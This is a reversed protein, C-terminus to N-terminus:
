WVYEGKEDRPWGEMCTYGGDFLKCQEGSVEACVRFCYLYKLEITKLVLARNAETDNGKEKFFKVLGDEDDFLANFLEKEM